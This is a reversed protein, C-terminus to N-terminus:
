VQTLCFIRDLWRSGRVSSLSLGGIFLIMVTCSYALKVKLGSGTWGDCQQPSIGRFEGVGVGGKSAQRFLRQRGRGKGAQVVEM